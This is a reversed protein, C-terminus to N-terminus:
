NLSIAFFWSLLCFFSGTLHHFFWSCPIRSIL